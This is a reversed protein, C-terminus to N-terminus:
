LGLIGFLVFIFLLFFLVNGFSPLAKILTNVLSKMKKIANISRLPRMVRLTRLSKLNANIPLFDIFGFLVVIFDIFNWGDRLYSNKQLVFGMAIIKLISEVTFIVTFSLQIKELVKNYSSDSDRDSYDYMSLVLSNGIIIMVIFYEFLRYYM